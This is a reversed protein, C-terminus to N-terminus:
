KLANIEHTVLDLKLAVEDREAVTAASKDCISKIFHNCWQETFKVFNIFASLLYLTRERGPQGIDKATFDPVRAAM